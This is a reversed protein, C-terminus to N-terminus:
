PRPAAARRPRSWGCRRPTAAPRSGRECPLGQSCFRNVTERSCGARRGRGAWGRAPRPRRQLREVLALVRTQETDEGRQLLQVDGEALDGRGVDEGEVQRRDHAQAVRRAELEHHLAQGAGRRGVQRRHRAPQHHRRLLLRREGADERGVAGGRRLDVELEVALAGLREADRDAVDEGGQLGRHAAGVGVVEVQEAAGPLHLDLGLRVVAPVIVSMKRTRTRVALPSSTGSCATASTSSTM